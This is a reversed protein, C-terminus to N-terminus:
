YFRRMSAVRILVCLIGNEIYFYIVKIYRFDAAIPINGLSELILEFCGHCVLWLNEPWQLDVTDRFSIDWLLKEYSLIYKKFM